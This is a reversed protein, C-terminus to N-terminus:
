GTERFLYWRLDRASGSLQRAGTNTVQPEKWPELWEALGPQKLDARSGGTYQRCGGLDRRYVSGALLGSRLQIVAGPISTLPNPQCRSHPPCAQAPTGGSAVGRLRAPARWSL